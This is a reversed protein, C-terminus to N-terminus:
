KDDEEKWMVVWNEQAEDLGLVSGKKEPDWSTSLAGYATGIASAGFTIFTTLLPLWKPVDWLHQGRIADFIKLLVVGTLLPAGVSVLIRTIMREFVVEPIKEDPDKNSPKNKKVGQQNPSARNSNFGKAEAKVKWSRKCKAIRTRQHNLVTPTKIDKWSKSETLCFFPQQLAFLTKM